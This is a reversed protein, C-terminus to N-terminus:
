RKGISLPRSLLLMVILRVLAAVSAAEMKRMIHARHIQVTYETIGLEFGAQENLLGHLLLSRAQQERLTL